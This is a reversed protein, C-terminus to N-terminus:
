SKAAAGKAYIEAAKLVRLVNGSWINALDKDSYGAAKIVATIKPIDTVDEMGIVGGGGDWDLGIGVHEPGVLKLAHLLHKAFMDFDPRSGPYKALIARREKMLAAVEAPPLDRRNGVKAMLAKMEADRAPSAVAKAIYDGYSNIQIVGGKAALAKLRADDVNRPHDYVAKCGSHSLIIPTASLALMQDLVDDSSHSADLIMGLRNAEAVFAKGAPSLGHWELGAPDTSSDAWDNNRFHAPGIMRVGFKYFTAMLGIDGSLPYSNEISQYVIVKGKAAIRAADDATFALEMRDPHAAVMERIDMARVLAAERAARIGEPTRPGQATYIAFFGGDLGGKAMRPLDVQSFDEHGDHGATFDWGPRSFNAPTDLHTDLTILKQHLAMVAPSVVPGPGAAAPMAVSAALTVCLAVFSKM